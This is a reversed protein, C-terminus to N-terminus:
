SMKTVLTTILNILTSMQQLILDFKEAQKLLMEEIKNPTPTEVIMTNQNTRLIDSYSARKKTNPNMKEEYSVPQPPKTPLQRDNNAAPTRDIPMQRNDRTTARNRIHAQKNSKRALIEKYVECGKYNAPHAGLCLACKAPTNRDTKPCDSTRHGQACKVCRYPRMCYNKSHGYQQCKQCQVIANRIRPEEITVLQHDIYKITKLAVNNPSQQLTAFFTSTPKKDPGYKANIIEGIVTNGTEELTEKISSIPTSHHLNKIVVRHPKNDKRNFTHGILGKDRVIKIISKYVEVNICNIRLQNKNIIKYKFDAKNAVSELLETLKTLDEIGYLIIPPPKPVKLAERENNEEPDVPLSSFQNTTMVREPSPSTVKKRKASRLLPVRQWTPPNDSEADMKNSITAHSQSNVDTVSSLSASRPRALFLGPHFVQQALKKNSEKLGTANVPLPAQTGVRKCDETVLKESAPGPVQLRRTSAPDCPLINEYNTSM